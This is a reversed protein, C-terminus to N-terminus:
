LKMDRECCFRGFLRVTSGEVVQPCYFQLLVTGINKYEIFFEFAFELFIVPEELYFPFQGTKRNLHLRPRMKCFICEWKM